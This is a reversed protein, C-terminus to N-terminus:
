SNEGDVKNKREGKRRRCRGDIRRSNVNFGGKGGRGEWRNYNRRGGRGEDDNRNLFEKWKGGGYMREM